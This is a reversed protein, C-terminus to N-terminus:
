RSPEKTLYCSRWSQDDINQRLLMNLLSNAIGSFAHYRLKLLLLNLLSSAIACFTHNGSNWSYPINLMFLITYPKALILSYSSTKSSHQVNVCVQLDNLPAKDVFDFSQLHYAWVHTVMKFCFWHSTVLIEQSKYILVSYM